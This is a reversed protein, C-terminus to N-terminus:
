VPSFNDHRTETSDNSNKVGSLIQKVYSTRVVTYFTITFVYVLISNLNSLLPETVIQWSVGVRWLASQPRRDRGRSTYFSSRLRFASGVIKRTKIWIKSATGGEFWWRLMDELTCNLDLLTRLLGYFDPGPILIRALTARIRTGPGYGAM